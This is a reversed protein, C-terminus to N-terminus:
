LAETLSCPGRRGCSLMPGSYLCRPWAPACWCVYVVDLVYWFVHSFASLGEYISLMLIFITAPTNMIIPPRVDALLKVGFDVKKSVLGADRLVPMTVVGRASLRGRDVAAQLSRLNVPDWTIANRCAPRM